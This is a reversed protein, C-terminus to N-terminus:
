INNVSDLLYEDRSSLVEITNVNILEGDAITNKTWQVINGDIGSVNGTNYNMSNNAASWSYKNSM